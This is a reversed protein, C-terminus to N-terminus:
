QIIRGTEFVPAWKKRLLAAHKQQLEGKISGFGQSGLHEVYVDTNVALNWGTMHARMMWDDDDGYCPSFQEDFLGVETLAERSFMTCFFSLPWEGLAGKSLTPLPKPRLTGINPECRGQYSNRNVSTRPGVCATNQEFSDRLKELWGHTHVVIDDNCVVVYPATTGFIGLNQGKVWGINEGNKPVVCAVRLPLDALKQMRHDPTNDVIILCTEDPDATCQVISDIAKETCEGHAVLVVDFQNNEM